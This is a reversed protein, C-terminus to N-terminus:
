EINPQSALRRRVEEHSDLHQASIAAPTGLIHALATAARVHDIKIVNSAAAVLPDARTPGQNLIVIPKASPLRRASSTPNATFAAVSAMTAVGDKITNSGSSNSNNNNNGSAGNAAARSEREMLDALQLVSMEHPAVVRDLTGRLLRFASWVTLTTGVVLIGDSAALLEDARAHVEKPVSAGFFVLDPKLVGHQMPESPYTSKAETSSSPSSPAKLEDPRLPNGREDTCTSCSPLVFTSFDIDASLNSDGDPRLAAAAHAIPSAASSPLTVPSAGLSPSILHQAHTHPGLAATQAQRAADAPALHHLHHSAAEAHHRLFTPNLSRLRKQYEARSSIAGCSMCRVNEITGHLHLVNSSGAAEHLHDVNQTIVGKVTGAGQKEAHAIAFHGANPAANALTEYGQLSRAWYRQRTLHSAMFQQHSTPRHPPRGPSRYDAVGSDTSIGAGTLVLLNRCNSLLERAQEL